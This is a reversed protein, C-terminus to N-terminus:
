LAVGPKYSVCMVVVVFGLVSGVALTAGVAGFFVEEVTANPHSCVAFNKVVAGWSCKRGVSSTGSIANTPLDLAPLDVQM